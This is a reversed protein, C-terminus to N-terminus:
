CTLERSTLIETQKLDTNDADLVIGHANYTSLLTKDFSQMLQTM